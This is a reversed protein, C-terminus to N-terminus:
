RERGQGGLVVQRRITQKPAQAVFGSDRGNNRKRRSEESENQEGRSARQQFGRTAM